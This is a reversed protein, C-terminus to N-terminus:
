ASAIVNIKPAHTALKGGEIRQILRQHGLKHQSVDSVDDVLPALWFPEVAQVLDELPVHDRDQSAKAAREFAEDGNM